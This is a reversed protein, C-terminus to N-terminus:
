SSRLPRRTGADAVRDYAPEINKTMERVLRLQEPTPRFRQRDETM